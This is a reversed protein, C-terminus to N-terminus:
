EDMLFYVSSGQDRAGGGYSTPSIVSSLGRVRTTEPDDAVSTCTGKLKEFDEHYKVQLLIQLVVQNWSMISSLKARSCRQM